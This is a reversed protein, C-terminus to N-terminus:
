KLRKLIGTLVEFFCNTSSVSLREKTTHVDYMQPGISIADMGEIASSFVGCELGAHIAEVKPKYGCLEEYVSCYIERLQSNENFEWAPYYGSNECKANLAEFIVELRRKLYKQASKKNSRLSFVLSVENHHTQLIGLNLSTEVLGEIESSMEMVGCPVCLFAYLLKKKTESDFVDYEGREGVLIEPCFDKERFAIEKKIINLCEAAKESFTKLDYVCLKATSSNPIANSKDGGCINIIDFETSQAICDLTRGLLIDANVRGGNIEIGSHGGRLGKIEITAETGTVKKRKVSFSAKLDGGGACSVTVVGEDESDLNIMRKSKLVSKDLKLAGLMGIEEDVTFVAEIPPHEYSNSELITLIASVAIGNDAGLTTGHAKLFGDDIYLDLGDKEFDFDSDEVKQCVMDLHGQLMVPASMEYGNTGPKYIVINDANDRIYELNHTKAFQECFDAIQTMNGSGRPIGSIKEFYHFIRTESLDAINIM